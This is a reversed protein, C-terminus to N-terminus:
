AGQPGKSRLREYAKAVVPTAVVTAAIRIPQTLKTAVYAAAWSGATGAASTPQWGLRIALWFGFLVGFFIVFYVIVAVTGYEALLKEITKKM